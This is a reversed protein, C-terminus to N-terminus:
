CLDVTGQASSSYIGKRERAHWYLLLVKGSGGALLRPKKMRPLPGFLLGLKDPICKNETTQCSKSCKARLRPGATKQMWVPPLQHKAGRQPEPECGHFWLQQEGAEGAPLGQTPAAPGCLRLAAASNGTGTARAAGSQGEPSWSHATIFPPPDSFCAEARETQLTPHSPNVVSHRRHVSSNQYSLHFTRILLRVCWVCDGIRPSVPGEPARFLSCNQKQLHRDPDADKQEM